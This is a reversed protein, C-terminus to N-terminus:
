VPERGDELRQAKLAAAMFRPLDVDDGTTTWWLEFLMKARDDSTVVRRFVENVTAEIEADHLPM